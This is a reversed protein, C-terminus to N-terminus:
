LWRYQGSSVMYVSPTSIIYVKAGVQCFKGIVSFLDDNYSHVIILSGNPKLWRLFEKVAAIKDQIYYLVHSVWVIDVSDEPGMWGPFSENM